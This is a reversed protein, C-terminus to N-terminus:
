CNDHFYNVHFTNAGFFADPMEAVGLRATELLRSLEKLESRSLHGVLQQHLDM